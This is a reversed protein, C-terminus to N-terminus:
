KFYGVWTDMMGKEEEPAKSHAGQNASAAATTQGDGRLVLNKYQKRLSVIQSDKTQLEETLENMTNTFNENDNLIKVRLFELESDKAEIKKKSIELRKQEEKLKSTLDDIDENLKKVHARSDDLSKQLETLKQSSEVDLIPSKLDQGGNSFGFISGRKQGGLNDSNFIASQRRNRGVSGQSMRELNGLGGIEELTDGEFAEHDSSMNDGFDALKKEAVKIKFNLTDIEDQYSKVEAKHTEEITELKRLLLGHEVKLKELQGHCLKLEAKLDEVKQTKEAIELKLDAKEQQIAEKELLLKNLDSSNKSCKASL